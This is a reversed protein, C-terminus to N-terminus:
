QNNIICEIDSKIRKNDKEKVEKEFYGKNTSMRIKNIGIESIENLIDDDIPYVPTTTIVSYSGIYNIDSVKSEIPYLEIIKDNNLKLYIPDERRVTLVDNSTLKMFLFKEKDISSLFMSFIHRDTMKKNINFMETAVKKVGTFEDTENKFLKCQANAVLSMFLISITFLLKITKM